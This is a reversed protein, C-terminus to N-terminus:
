FICISARINQIPPKDRVLHSVKSSTIDPDLNSLTLIGSLSANDTKNFNMVLLRAWM